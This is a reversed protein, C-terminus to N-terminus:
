YESTALSPISHLPYISLRKFGCAEHSYVSESVLGKVESLDNLEGHRLKRLLFLPLQESSNFLIQKHTNSSQTQYV